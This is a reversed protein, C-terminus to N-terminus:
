ICKLVATIQLGGIEDAESYIIRVIRYELQLKLRDCPAVAKLIVQLAIAITPIVCFYPIFRNTKISEQPSDCKKTHLVKASTRQQQSM